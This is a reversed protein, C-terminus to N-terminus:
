RAIPQTWSLQQATWMSSLSIKRNLITNAEHHYIVEYHYVVNIFTSPRMITSLGVLRLPSWLLSRGLMCISPRAITSSRTHSYLAEYYNVVWQLSLTGRLLLHGLMCTSAGCHYYAEHHYIVQYHLSGWLLLHGSM